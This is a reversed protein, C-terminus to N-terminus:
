PAVAIPFDPVEQSTIEGGGADAPSTETWSATAQNTVTHTFEPGNPDWIGTFTIPLALGTTDLTFRVDQGATVPLPSQSLPSTM